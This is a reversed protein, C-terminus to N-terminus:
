PKRRAIVLINEGFLGSPSFLARRIDENRRRQVPDKEKRFAIRTYAWMWPIWVSYLYSVARVHTHAVHQVDFGTTHLAYRLDSITCLGIHHLPHRMSENLPRPDQHFFGSGCFRVRSRVSVINPTTIILLGAPELIRHAERLFAFRNELHEIGEVCTVLQFRADPWPLPGTPELLRFEGAPFQGRSPPVIDAGVTAYGAGALAEALHGEGCPLDLVPAGRPLSLGLVRDFM